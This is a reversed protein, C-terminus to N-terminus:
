VYDAVEFSYHIELRDTEHLKMTNRLEILAEVADDPNNYVHGAVDGTVNGYCTVVITYKHNFRM